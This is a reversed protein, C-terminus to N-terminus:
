KNFLVIIIRGFSNSVRDFLNILSLLIDTTDLVEVKRGPFSVCIGQEWNSGPRTAYLVYDRSHRSLFRKNIHITTNKLLTRKFTYLHILCEHEYYPLDGTYKKRVTIQVCYLAAVHTEGRMGM